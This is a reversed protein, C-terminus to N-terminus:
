TEPDDKVRYEGDVVRASSAGQDQGGGQSQPDFRRRLYHRLVARLVFSVVFLMVFPLLMRAIALAM